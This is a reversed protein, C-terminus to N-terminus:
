KGPREREIRFRRPGIVPFIGRQVTKTDTLVYFVDPDFLNIISEVEAMNKRNVITQVIGVPGNAGEGRIITAGFNSKNLRQVLEEGNKKTYVQVLQIGMAIREEVYLGVYSGTAYGGAYCVYSFLNNAHSLLESIVIIWILVEFFAVFPAVNKKGKSIFIIRLTGLTVDFVRALFILLPLFPSALVPGLIEAM